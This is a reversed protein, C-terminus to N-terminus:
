EVVVDSRMALLGEDVTKKQHPEEGTRGPLAEQAFRAIEVVVSGHVAVVEQTVVEVV